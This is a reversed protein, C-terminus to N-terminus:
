PRQIISELVRRKAKTDIGILRVYEGQHEAICKSLFSLVDAERTSDVPACSSWSGTKFRRKDAHETGIKYGQQLLSKVQSLTQSDLSGSSSAGNSSYSSSYSAPASSQNETRPSAPAGDSPRAIVTELVRRKAKTDIGLLRIYEGQHEILCDNLARLVESENGSEIPSCSVWSGTKFRRKDAHETGIKYGQQLLSRVKQIIDAGLTGLGSTFSSRRNEANSSGSNTSGNEGPRQVIM